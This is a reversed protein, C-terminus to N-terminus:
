RWGSHCLRGSYRNLNPSFFAFYPGNRRVLDNLTMSNPVLRFSMHSKRNSIDRVTESNDCSITWIKSVKRKESHSKLRFDAMKHKQAKCSVTIMKPENSLAYHVSLQVIKGLHWPQPAVLSYRSFIPSKAGVPAPQGM